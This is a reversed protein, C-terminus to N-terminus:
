YVVIVDNYNANNESVLWWVCGSQGLDALIALGLSGFVVFIYIM